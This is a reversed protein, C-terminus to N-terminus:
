TEEQEPQAADNRPSLHGCFEDCTCNRLTLTCCPCKTVCEVHHVDYKEVGIDSDPELLVNVASGNAFESMAIFQGCVQCKNWGPRM